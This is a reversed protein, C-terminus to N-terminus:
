RANETTLGALSSKIGPFLLKDSGAFDLLEIENFAAWRWQTHEALTFNKESFNIRYAHLSFQRGHHEFVANGVLGGVSIKVSFEEEYERILAEEDSEGEEVKGGPFEWKGGLDGGDKRQAIFITNGEVAIGAVSRKM